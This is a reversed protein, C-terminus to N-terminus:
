FNVVTHYREFCPFICLPVKCTKCRYSTQKRKGGARNSCVRCDPKGGGPEPFHNHGILRTPCNTVVSQCTQEEKGTSAILGKAVAIRFDMHSLLKGTNSKNYLIYANVLTVDLMHFFIRKWWKKTVNNYGYYQMLQGARDVGGMYTNYQDIAAPKQVTVHGGPGGKLRRRKSIMEGNHITTLLSVDKKDKWKIGLIEGDTYQVVEGKKVKASRFSPPIGKRNLRLTGCCGFGNTHLIHCLTPSTYYNDFYIHHGKGALSKVLDVVVRTGLADETASEEKGTYVTLNWCYGSGAEALAWAKIGWKHTKKPMYQLFSLRGKYKIMMKDVSLKREMRNSSQYSEMLQSLFYRVKFLKDHGVQHLPIMRDNNALHLFKLYLLFRDRSMIENFNNSAFPWSTNWYSQINPMNVIGMCIILSLFLLRTFPKKVFANARARPHQTLYAQHTTIYQEGYRNSEEVIYDQLEDHFLELFYDVPQKGSLDKVVGCKETFRPIKLQEESGESVEGSSEEESRVDVESQFADEVTAASDLGGGSVDNCGGVQPVEMSGGAGRAVEMYVGGLEHIYTDSVDMEQEDDDVYGDFDDDSGDSDIDDM